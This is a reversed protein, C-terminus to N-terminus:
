LILYLCTYRPRCFDYLLRQSGLCHLGFCRLSLSRKQKQVRRCFTSDNIYFIGNHHRSDSHPFMIPPLNLLGNCGTHGGGGPMVLCETGEIQQPSSHSRNFCRAYQVPALSIKGGQLKPRCVQPLTWLKNFDAM